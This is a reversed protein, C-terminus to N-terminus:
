VKNSSYQPPPGVTVVPHRHEKEQAISDDSPFPHDGGNSNYTYASDAYAANHRRKLNDM